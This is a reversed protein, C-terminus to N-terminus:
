VRGLTTYVAGTASAVHKFQTSYDFVIPEGFDLEATKGTPVVIVAMATTDRSFTVTIDAGTSNYYLIKRVARMRWYSAAACAYSVAAARGTPVAAPASVTAARPVPNSAQPSNSSSALCISRPTQVTSAVTPSRCFSM